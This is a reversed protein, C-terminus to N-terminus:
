RAELLHLRAGFQQAMLAEQMSEIETLSKARQSLVDQDRRNTQIGAELRALNQDMKALQAEYNAKREASLEAQLKRDPDKGGYRGLQGKLESSLGATQTDLSQLRARLQSEDASAFTPDLTALVEGKRVVQGVRVEIKQIISTELPQVVLNPLPTILRGQAVVVQSFSAWLVFCVLAGALVYVTSRIFAPLPLREIADADPLFEIVTDDRGRKAEPTVSSKNTPEM